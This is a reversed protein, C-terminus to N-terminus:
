ALLGASEPRFREDNTRENAQLWRLITNPGIRARRGPHLPGKPRSHLRLGTEQLRTSGQLDPNLESPDGDLGVLTKLFGIHAMGRDREVVFTPSSFALMPEVFIIKDFVRVFSKRGATMAEGGFIPLKLM